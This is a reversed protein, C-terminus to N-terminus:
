KGKKIKAEVEDKTKDTEKKPKVKEKKTVKTKKKAVKKKVPKEGGLTRNRDSMKAPEGSHRVTGEAPKEIDISYGTLKSALRVNQGEKGIALSLQDDSIEAEARRNKKNVRVKEIRAPSLAKKIYTRADDSYEIIDIKEDGVEALVAQVRTGRQGVCSGVPDVGEENSKVSIKTRRGPERAVSVIEVTKAESIEPVELEFLARILGPDSRSVNILPAKPTEEVKSLYIRMRQGIYYKEDPVQETPFMVGNAKGLNIIVNRGEIQQVVGNLLTGEKKKYENYIVNRESERLKQIVVQKATQAAIRGFDSKARLKKKIEEGEEIKKRKKKADSLSIQNEENDFEDDPVVKFVQFYSVKGTKPDFKADIRQDGKGYEKRYAAALAYEITSYVDEEPIGKENMIAKISSIFENDIKM